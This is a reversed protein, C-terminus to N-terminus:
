YILGLDLVCFLMGPNALGSIKTCNGWHKFAGPLISRWPVGWPQKTHCLGQSSLHYCPIRIGAKFFTIESTIKVSKNQFIFKIVPPSAGCHPSQPYICHSNQVECDCSNDTLIGNDAMQSIWKSSPAYVSQIHLSTM